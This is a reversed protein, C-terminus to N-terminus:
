KKRRKFGIENGNNKNEEGNEERKWFVWQPCQEEVVELEGGKERLSVTWGYWPCKRTDCNVGCLQEQWKLQRVVRPPIKDYNFEAYPYKAKLYEISERKTQEVLEEYSSYPTHKKIINDIAGGLMDGVRKM